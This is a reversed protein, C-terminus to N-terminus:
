ILDQVRRTFYLRLSKIMIILTDFDEENMKEIGEIKNIIDRRTEDGLRPQVEAKSKLRSEWRERSQQAITSVLSVVIGIGSFMM